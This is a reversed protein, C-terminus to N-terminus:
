RGVVVWGKRKAHIQKHGSIHLTSFPIHAFGLLLHTYFSLHNNSGQDWRAKSSASPNCCHCYHQFTHTILTLSKGPRTAPTTVPSMMWATRTGTSILSLKAILYLLIIPGQVKSCSMRSTCRGKPKSSPLMLRRGPSRLTLTFEYAIITCVNVEKGLSPHTTDCSTGLKNM